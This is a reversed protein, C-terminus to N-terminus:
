PSINVTFFGSLSVFRSSLSQVALAAIPYTSLSVTPNTSGGLYLSPNGLVPPTTNPWRRGWTAACLDVFLTAMHSAPMGPQGGPGMAPIFVIYYLTKDFTSAGDGRAKSGWKKRGYSNDVTGDYYTYITNNGRLDTDTISDPLSSLNGTVTNNGRIVLGQLGTRLNQDNDIRSIGSLHSFAKIDGTITNNGYIAFVFLRTFDTDDLSGTITNPAPIDVYGLDRQLNAINGTINSNSGYILLGENLSKPLDKLDGTIAHNGLYAGVYQQGGSGYLGGRIDFNRLTTPLDSLDGSVVGDSLVAYYLASRSLKDLNGSVANYRSALIFSNCASLSNMSGTISDLVDLHLLKVDKPMLNLDASLTNTINYRFNIHQMKSNLEHVNGTLTSSGAIEVSTIKSSLTNINGFLTNNGFLSLSQLNPCNASLSSINGTITNQGHITLIEAASLQLNAINGSLTNNGTIANPTVVGPPWNTIDGLITNRGSINVGQLSKPLSNINGSVTNLGGISVHFMGAPLSSVNGTITNWNGTLWWRISSPMNTLTGSIEAGINLGYEVAAWDLPNSNAELNPVAYRTGGKVFREINPPLQDISGRVVSNNAVEFHKLSRPLDSININVKNRGTIFSVPSDLPQNPLLSVFTKLATLQTLGTLGTILHSGLNLSTLNVFPTVNVTGGLLPASVGLDIAYVNQPGGNGYSLKIGTKAM